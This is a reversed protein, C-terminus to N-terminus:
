AQWSHNTLLRIKDQYMWLSTGIYRRMNIKIDFARCIVIELLSLASFVKSRFSTQSSFTSCIYKWIYSALALPKNMLSIYFIFFKLADSRWFFFFFFFFSLQIFCFTHFISALHFAKLWNYVSQYPTM